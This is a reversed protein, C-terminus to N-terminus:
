RIDNRDHKGGTGAKHGRKTVLCVQHDHAGTTIVKSIVQFDAQRHCDDGHSDARRQDRQDPRESKAVVLADNMIRWSSSHHPIATEMPMLLYHHRLLRECVEALCTSAATRCIRRVQETKIMVPETVVAERCLPLFNQASEVSM